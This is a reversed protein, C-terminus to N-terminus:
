RRKKAAKPNYTLDRLIDNFQEVLAHRTSERLVGQEISKYIDFVWEPLDMMGGSKGGERGKGGFIGGGGGAGGSRPGAKHKPGYRGGTFAGWVGGKGAGGFAMPDGQRGLEAEEPSIGFGKLFDNVAEKDGHLEDLIEVLRVIADGRPSGMAFYKLVDGIKRAIYLAFPFKGASFGLGYGFGSLRYMAFAVSHHRTKFYTAIAEDGLGLISGVSYFWQSWAGDDITATYIEKFKARMERYLFQREEGTAGAHQRSIEDLEDMASARGKRPKFINDIKEGLISWISQLDDKIGDASDGDWFAFPMDIDVDDAPPLTKRGPPLQIKMAEAIAPDLFRGQDIAMQGADKWTLPQGTKM